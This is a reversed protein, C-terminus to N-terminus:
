RKTMLNKREENKKIKREREKKLQGTGITLDKNEKM